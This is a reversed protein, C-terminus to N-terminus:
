LVSFPKVCCRACHTHSILPGALKGPDLTHSLVLGAAEAEEKGM